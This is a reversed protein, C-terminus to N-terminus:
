CLCAPDDYPMWRGGDTSLPGGDPSRSVFFCGPLSQCYENPCASLLPRGNCVGADVSADSMDVQADRGSDMGGDKVDPIGCGALVSFALVKPLKLSPAKKSFWTRTQSM